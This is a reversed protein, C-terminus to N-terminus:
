GNPGIKTGAPLNETSSHLGRKATVIFVFVFLVDDDAYLTSDSLPVTSWDM